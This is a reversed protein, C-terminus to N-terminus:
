IKEAIRMKASRARNNQEIEDETPIIPKKTVEKLPKLINGYFDKEAEGEFQGKKFFNKTLRDELSHYSIIVLRGKPNLCEASQQLFSQLVEMEQNVEIRIAQFVRANFQNRKKDGGCYPEIIELLENTTNISKNERANCIAWSVKHPNKLDAYVRFIRTLDEKEYENVVKWANLDASQNMRMDLSANSRISFGREQEDFQYSSVGLDGLIGDVKKYGYLKLFNKLYAFNQPIFVFREDDILNAQADEDQDFAILTGTTLRKIIERSHGGGGFTVDVYVGEPNINLGDVADNLLVPIHYASSTM